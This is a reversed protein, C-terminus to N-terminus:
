LYLKTMDFIISTQLKTLFVQASVQKAFIQNIEM